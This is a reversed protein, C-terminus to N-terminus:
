GDGSWCPKNTESKNVAAWFLSWLDMFTLLLAATAESPGSLLVVTFCSVTKTEERPRSAGISARSMILGKQDLWVDCDNTKQAAIETGQLEWDTLARRAKSPKTVMTGRWTNVDAPSSTVQHRQHRSSETNLRTCYLVSIWMQCCPSELMHIFLPSGLSLPFLFPPTFISNNIECISVSVSFKSQRSRAKVLHFDFMSSLWLFSCISSYNKERRDKRQRLHMGLARSWEGGGWQCGRTREPAPPPDSFGAHCCRPTSSRRDVDPLCRPKWDSPLRHRPRTLKVKVWEFILYKLSPSMLDSLWVWM